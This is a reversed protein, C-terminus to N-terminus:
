LDLSFGNKNATTKYIESKYMASQIAINSLQLFYGESLVKTNKHLILFVLYRAITAFHRVYSRYEKFEKSLM